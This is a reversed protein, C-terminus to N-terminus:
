FFQVVNCLLKTSSFLRMRDYPKQLALVPHCIKVKLHVIGKILSRPDTMEERCGQDKFDHNKETM